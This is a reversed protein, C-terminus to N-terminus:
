DTHHKNDWWWIVNVSRWQDDSSMILSTRMEAVNVDLNIRNQLNTWRSILFKFSLHRIGQAARRGPWMASHLTQKVIFEHWNKFWHSSNCRVERILFVFSDSELWAAPIHDSHVEPLLRNSVFNHVSQNLTVVTGGYQIATDAIRKSNLQGEISWRWYLLLWWDQM